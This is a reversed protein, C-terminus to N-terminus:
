LLESNQPALIPDDLISEPLLTLPIKAELLLKESLNFSAAWRPNLNYISIVRSVGAQILMATCSSCPMFPWVHVISGQLKSTANLLANAEAHVIIPYKKERSLLREDDCIGRPFGNFGLSLIQNQGNTIVCGVKTSPDKSWSAVERALRLFRIAWRV